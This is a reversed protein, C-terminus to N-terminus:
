TTKENLFIGEKLFLAKFPRKGIVEPCPIQYDLQISKLMLLSKFAKKHPIAQNYHM